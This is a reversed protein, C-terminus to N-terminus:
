ADGLREILGLLEAEEWGACRWRRQHLAALMIRQESPRLNLVLYGAAIQEAMNRNGAQTGADAARRINGTRLDMSSAAFARARTRDKRRDEQAQRREHIVAAITGPIPASSM